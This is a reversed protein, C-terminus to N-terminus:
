KVVLHSFVAFDQALHNIRKLLMQRNAKVLSDDANVMNEEFFQDILPSLQRLHDFHSEAVQHQEYDTEAAVLAEYLARESATQFKDPEISQELLLGDAMNNIRTFSEGILKYDTESQAHTLIKAKEIVQLPDLTSTSLVAQRIDYPTNSEDELLQDLRGKFFQLLDEKHAYFGAKIDEAVTITEILDDMLDGLSLSLQHDVLIRIVGLANRRLAHPDNSGTPILGIAFFLMLMELKDALALLVGAESQPLSGNAHTPMYHEEIAQAVTESEGRERVYVSGIYGQLKSFEGVVNTMLDFKYIDGARQLTERVESSINLKEALALAMEKVRVQKQRLHGLKEQYMSNELQKVFAEITVQKDEEYFFKADELRAVLVKENGKVVQELYAEDGNRVGIFYPLFAGTSEDRVPFYRQHDAMSTELIKEPVELFGADFQGYFVTPYEVLNTVEELLSPINPVQWGNDQCLERIQSQIATRRTQYHAIVYHELLKEEYQDPHELLIEEGLFRHGWTTNSAEIGFLSTPVVSDDLLSILWHVPRIYRESRAGWKMSVPFSLQKAVTVIDGIVAETAQGVIQKEVFVYPVGDIEKFIIDGVEVGQGKSFGIAAKTWNGENDQAIKKAPGKIVELQDEQREALGNIRVALRRPTSFTEITEYALRVEALFLETKAQLQQELGLIMQAPMEELGIEFLYTHTM